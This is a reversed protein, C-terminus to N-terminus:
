PKRWEKKPPVIAANRRAANILLILSNMEGKNDMKLSSCFNENLLMRNADKDPM